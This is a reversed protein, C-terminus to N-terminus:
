QELAEVVTRRPLVAEEWPHHQLVGDSTRRHAIGNGSEDTQCLTGHKGFVLVQPVLLYEHQLTAALIAVRDVARAVPHRHSGSTCVAEANAGPGVQHVEGDHM